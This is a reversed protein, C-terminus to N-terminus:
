SVWEIELGEPIDFEEGCDRCYLRGDEGDDLGDTQYFSDVPVTKGKLPNVLRDNGIDETYRVDTSECKPCALKRRRGRGKIVAVPRALKDYLATLESVADCCDIEQDTGLWPFHEKLLARISGNM